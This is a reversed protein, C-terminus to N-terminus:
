CWPLLLGVSLWFIPFCCCSLSGKVLPSMLFHETGVDRVRKRFRLLGMSGGLPPGLGPAELILVAADVREEARVELVQPV